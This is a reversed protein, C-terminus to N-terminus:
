GCPQSFLANPIIEPTALIEPIHIHCFFLSFFAQFSLENIATRIRKGGLATQTNESFHQSKYKQICNMHILLHLWLFNVWLYLLFHLRGGPPYLTVVYAGHCWIFHLYFSWCSSHIFFLYLKKFLLYFQQSQPRQSSHHSLALPPPPPPPPGMHSSNSQLPILILSGSWFRRAQSSVLQFWLPFFGSVPTKGRWSGCSGIWSEDRCTQETEMWPSWGRSWAQRSVCLGQWFSVPSVRRFGSSHGESM